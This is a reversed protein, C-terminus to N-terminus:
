REPRRRASKKAAKAKKKIQLAEAAATTDGDTEKLAQKCDMIGAGTQDRLTRILETSVAM